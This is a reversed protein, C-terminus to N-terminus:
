VGASEDLHEESLGATRLHTLQQFLGDGTRGRADRVHFAMRREGAAPSLSAQSLAFYRLRGLIEVSPPYIEQHDLEVGRQPVL